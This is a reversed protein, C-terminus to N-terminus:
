EVVREVRIKIIGMKMKMQLFKEKVLLDLIQGKEILDVVRVKGQTMGDVKGVVVIKEEIKIGLRIKEDKLTVTLREQKQNQYM